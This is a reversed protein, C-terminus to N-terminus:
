GKKADTITKKDRIISYFALLIFGFSKGFVQKKVTQILKTDFSGSKSVQRVCNNVYALFLTCYFYVAYAM